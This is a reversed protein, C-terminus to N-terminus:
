AMPKNKTRYSVVADGLGKTVSQEGTAGADVEQAMGSGGPKKGTLMGFYNGVKGKVKNFTSRARSRFGM